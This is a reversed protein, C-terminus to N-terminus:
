PGALLARISTKKIGFNYDTVLLDLFSHNTLQEALFLASLLNSSARQGFKKGFDFMLGSKYFTKFVSQQSCDM